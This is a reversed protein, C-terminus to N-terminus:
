KWYVAKYRADPYSDNFCIYTWGGSFHSVLMAGLWFIIGKTATTDAFYKNDHDNSRTYSIGTLKALLTLYIAVWRHGNWNRTKVRTM